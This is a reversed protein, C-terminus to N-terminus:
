RRRHTRQTCQALAALVAFSLPVSLDARGDGEWVEGKIGGGIEERGRLVAGLAFLGGSMGEGLM